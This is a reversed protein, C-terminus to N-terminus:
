PQVIWKLILTGKEKVYDRKLIHLTYTKGKGHSDSLALMHRNM